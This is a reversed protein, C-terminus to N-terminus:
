ATTAEETANGVYRLSGRGEVKAPVMGTVSVYFGKKGISAAGGLTCAEAINLGVHAMLSDTFHDSEDRYNTELRMVCKDPEDSLTYPTNIGHWGQTRYAHTNSTIRTYVQNCHTPSLLIEYRPMTNCAM